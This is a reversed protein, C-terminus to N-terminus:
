GIASTAAPFNPTLASSLNCAGRPSAAQSVSVSCAWQCLVTNHYNLTSLLPLFSLSPMGTSVAITVPSSCTSPQSTGSCSSSTNPTERSQASLLFPTIPLKPIGCSGGAQDGRLLHRIARLLSQLARRCDARGPSQAPCTFAGDDQPRPALDWGYGEADRLWTSSQRGQGQLQRHQLGPTFCHLGPSPSPHWCVAPACVPRQFPAAGCPQPKAARLLCATFAM